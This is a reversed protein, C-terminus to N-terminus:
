VHTIFIYSENSIIEKQTSEYFYTIPKFRINQNEILLQRNDDKSKQKFGMEIFKKATDRSYFRDRVRGEELREFYKKYLSCGLTSTHFDCIVTRLTKPFKDIDMNKLLRTCTKGPRNFTENEKLKNSKM